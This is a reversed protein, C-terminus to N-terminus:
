VVRLVIGEGAELLRVKLPIDLGWCGNEKPETLGFVEFKSLSASRMVYHGDYNKGRNEIVGIDYPKMKNMPITGDLVPSVEISKIM